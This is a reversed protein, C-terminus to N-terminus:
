FSTGNKRQFRPGQEDRRYHMDIDPYYAEESAARTGVILFKAPKDTENVICHANPTNAKWGMVQGPTFPHRGDEDVIVMEGQLALVLEDENLHWHRQSSWAGPELTTINVGFQKLGFPNGLSVNSRGKVAKAYHEPYGSGTRVPLDSINLVSKPESM